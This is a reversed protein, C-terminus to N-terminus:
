RQVESQAVQDFLKYMAPIVTDLDIFEQYKEIAKQKNAGINGCFYAAYEEMIKDAFSVKNANGSPSSYDRALEEITRKFGESQTDTASLLINYFEDVLARHKSRKAQHFGEHYAVEEGSTKLDASMYIQATQADSARAMAETHHEVTGNTYLDYTGDFVTGRMGWSQLLEMARRCNDNWRSSPAEQYAFYVKKGTQTYANIRKKDAICQRVFDKSEIAEQVRRGEYPADSGREAARRQEFDEIFRQVQERATEQVPRAADAETQPEAQAELAPDPRTLDAPDPVAQTEMTSGGAPEPLGNEASHGLIDWLPDDAAPPRQIMGAPTHKQWQRVTKRADAYSQPLPGVINELAARSDPHALAKDLASDTVQGGALVRAATQGAEAAFDNMGAAHAALATDRSIPTDSPYAEVQELPIGMRGAENYRSWQADFDPTRGGDRGSLYNYNRVSNVLAPVEQTSETVTEQATNDNASSDSISTDSSMWHSQADSGAPSASSGTDMPHKRKDMVGISYATDIDDNVYIGVGNNVGASIKVAYYQGDADEFYATFYDFGDEGLDNAHNKNQDPRWRRWKATELLEDIHGAARMKAGLEAAELQKRGTKEVSQVHTDTLKYASRDTIQVGFGDPTFVTIDEGNRVVDNIFGEAQKSWQSSDKSTIVPRNAKVYRKGDPLTEIKYQTEGPISNKQGEVAELAKRYRKEAELIFKQEETGRLKVSMDRLWNKIRTFLGPNTQALRGISADDTFLMSECFEAVVEKQAGDADLTVGQETYQEQKAKIRADLDLGSEEMHKQYFAVFSQYDGSQELHHTLEHVFVRRVPDGSNPNIRIVGDRYEGAGIIDPSLEVTAGVRKAIQDIVKSTRPNLTAAHENQELGPTRPTRQETGTPNQANAEARPIYKQYEPNVLQLLDAIKISLSASPHEGQATTEALTPLALSSAEEKEISELELVRGDYASAYPTQMGNQDFYNQITQPLRQSGVQYEKVKLKVPQVGNETQVAGFLTYIGIASENGHTIPEAHTLVANEIIESIHKAAGIQDLGLNSFTHTLTAPTIFVPEDTDRNIVPERFMETDEAMQKVAARQEKVPGELTSDRIDVVTMDPKQVLEEYTPAPHDAFKYQTGDPASNKQENQWVRVTKRADAYNEPLAGVAQELQARSEAHGLAKDLASDAITEGALVRAATQGAETAFDNMGAAHASFAADQSIPTNSPYAEVQELPIGMRGAENYRSWQADFDPTRGGDRGSLYNYNRASHQTIGNVILGGGGAIGGMLTGVLGNYLMQQVDLTANPDYTLRKWVPSLAAEVIEELGEGAASAGFRMVNQLASRGADSKALTKVAKDIAGQVLDDAAGHGYIKAIPGAMNSIKETLMSTVGSMLGYLQAQNRDAGGAEAELMGGGFSRAGMMGMGGFGTATGLARDLMMQIANAGLDVALRGGLGMGTKAHELDQAGADALQVAGENLAHAAQKIAANGKTYAEIKQQNNAILSNLEDREESTITGDATWDKLSKEWQTIEDQWAKLEGATEDDSAIARGTQANALNKTMGSGYQKGAGTITSWVRESATPVPTPHFGYTVPKTALSNTVKAATGPARLDSLIDAIPKQPQAAAKDQLLSAAARQARNTDLNGQVTGRAPAPTKGGANQQPAAAQTMTRDAYNKRAEERKKATASDQVRAPQTTNKQDLVTKTIYTAVDFPNGRALRLTEATEKKKKTNQGAM